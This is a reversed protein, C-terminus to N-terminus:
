KCTVKPLDSGVELGGNEWVDFLHTPEARQDADELTPDAMGCVYQSPYCLSSRSHAHLAGLAPHPGWVEEGSLGTHLHPAPDRSTAAPGKAATTGM